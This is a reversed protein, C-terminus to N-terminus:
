LRLSDGLEARGDRGIMVVIEGRGNKAQYEVIAMEDAGRGPQHRVAPDLFQERTCRRAKCFRAVQKDGIAVLQERTFPFASPIITDSNAQVQLSMGLSCAMVAAKAIM